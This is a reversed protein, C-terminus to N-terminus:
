FLDIAGAVFDEALRSIRALQSEVIEEVLGRLEGVPVGDTALRVQVMSPRSIPDGITGAMLCHVATIEPVEAVLKEAMNRAIVNYIKGVHSVPNKGALAEMSMPRCPTILGNARNGRGVQGDDGAEASTGTVTLYCSGRSIDDAANVMVDCTRFGLAAAKERALEEITAKNALYDDVGTLFRGIMACAVTLQIVDDQRIAMVKVDEGWAPTERHRDRSNIHREIALVLQELPSLPAHGTAIASDNALRDGSRGSHAFLSQLDASGPKTVIHFRVDHETDLAHM